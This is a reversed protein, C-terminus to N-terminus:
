RASSRTSWCSVSWCAPWARPADRFAPRQDRQHVPVGGADASGLFRGEMAAAVTGSYLVDDGLNAGDNVGSVVMDHRYNFLGSIALHVCDTPTGGLVCFVDPETEQVRLPMDLTLSNSAGSRNRDPAVVTVAGLDKLADALARIGDARYGDDNSVLIKVRALIATPPAAEPSRPSAWTQRHHSRATEHPLGRPSAAPAHQGPSRHDAWVAGGPAIRARRGTAPARPSGARSARIFGFKRGGIGGEEGAGTNGSRRQAFQPPALIADLRFQIQMAEADLSAFTCSRSNRTAAKCRLARQRRMTCPLPSREPGSSGHQSLQDVRAAAFGAPAPRQRPGAPRHRCRRPTRAAPGARKPIM